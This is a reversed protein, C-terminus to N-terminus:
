KAKKFKVDFKPDYKNDYRDTVEIKQGKVLANLVADSILEKDSAIDTELSDIKILENQFQEKIGLEIKKRKDQLLKIQASLDVYEKSNNYGDKVIEKLRKLKESKETMKDFILQIEMQKM